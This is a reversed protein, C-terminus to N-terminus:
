IHKRGGILKMGLSDLYHNIKVISREGKELLFEIVVDREVAPSFIYGSSFLLDKIQKMSLNMACAIALLTDKSPISKQLNNGALNKINYYTNRAYGAENLTHIIDAIKANEEFKCICDATKLVNNDLRAILKNKDNESIEIGTVKKAISSNKRSKGKEDYSFTQPEYSEIRNRLKQMEIDKCINNLYLEVDLRNFITTCPIQMLPYPHYFEDHFGNRCQETKTKEPVFTPLYLHYPVEARQTMIPVRQGNEMGTALVRVREKTPYYYIGAMLDTYFSPLNSIIEMLRKRNHEFGKDKCDMGLKMLDWCAVYYYPLSIKYTTIFLNAARYSAVFPERIGQLEIHGEYALAFMISIVYWEREFAEDYVMAAHILANGVRLICDEMGDPMDLDREEYYSKIKSLMDKHKSELELRTAKQWEKVKEGIDVGEKTKLSMPLENVAIQTGYEYMKSAIEKNLYLAYMTVLADYDECSLYPLLYYQFVDKDNVEVNLLIDSRDVFKKIDYMIDIEKEKHYPYSIM